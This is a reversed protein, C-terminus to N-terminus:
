FLSIIKLILPLLAEIFKLLESWDFGSDRMDKGRFLGASEAEDIVCEQIEALAEPRFFVALNVRALDWRSIEGDKYSQRAARKLAKAFGRSAIATPAASAVNENTM